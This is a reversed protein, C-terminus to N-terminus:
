LGNKAKSFTERTGLLKLRGECIGCFNPLLPKKWDSLLMNRLVNGELDFLFKIKLTGHSFSVSVVTSGKDIFLLYVGRYQRGEWQWKVTLQLPLKECQSEMESAQLKSSPDLGHEQATLGRCGHTLNRIM